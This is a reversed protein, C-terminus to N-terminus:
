PLCNRRHTMEISVTDVAAEAVVVNEVEAPFFDPFFKGPPVPTTLTLSHSAGPELGHFQVMGSVGTTDSRIGNEPPGLLQVRVDLLPGGTCGNTVMGVLTASRPSFTITCSSTRELPTCWAFPFVYTHIGALFGVGRGEINDIVSGHTLERLPTSPDYPWPEGSAIALIRKPGLSDPPYPIYSPRDDGPLWSVQVDHGDGEFAAPLRIQLFEEYSPIRWECCEASNNRGLVMGLYRTGRIVGSGPGLEISNISSPSRFRHTLVLTPSQWVPILVTASAAAGDSRTATLRYHRGPVMSMTTSYNHAFLGAGGLNVPLYRSLSDSMTVTTGTEIEELTVVADIPEPLTALSERIPTVRVWQTDLAADLHGYISFVLDSPALPEFPKECGALLPFALAVSVLSRVNM